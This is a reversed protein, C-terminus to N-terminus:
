PGAADGKGRSHRLVWQRYEENVELVPVALIEPVDYRHHRRVVEAVREFAARTTKILLLYENSRHVQDKWTYISAMPGLVQVCAASRESVLEEAIRQASEADPAAVHVEALADLDVGRAPETM